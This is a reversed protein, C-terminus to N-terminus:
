NLNQTSNSTDSFNSEDDHETTNKMIPATVDPQKVDTTSQTNTMTPTDDSTKSMFTKTAKQSQLGQKWAEKSLLNQNENNDLDEDDSLFFGSEDDDEIDNEFNKNNQM